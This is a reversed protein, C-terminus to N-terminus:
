QACAPRQLYCNTNLGVDQKAQVMWMPNDSGNYCRVVCWEKDEDQHEWVTEWVDLVPAWCPAKALHYQGVFRRRYDSNASDTDSLQLIEPIEPLPPSQQIGEM